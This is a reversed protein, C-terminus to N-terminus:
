DSEDYQRALVENIISAWLVSVVKKFSSTLSESIIEVLDNKQDCDDLLQRVRAIGGIFEAAVKFLRHGRIDRVM